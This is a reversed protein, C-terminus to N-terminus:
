SVKEKIKNLQELVEKILQQNGQSVSAGKTLFDNVEKLVLDINDKNVKDKIIQMATKKHGRVALGAITKYYSKEPLTQKQYLEMALEDTIKLPNRLIIKNSRFVGHPTSENEVEIVEADNPIEVEYLTDGRVLWRLIKDEVGFNFGGMEKPDKKNPNWNNAINVKNIKYKLNKDAGSTQGFMVKVYKLNM